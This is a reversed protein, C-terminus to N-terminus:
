EEEDDLEGEADADSGEWDLAEDEMGEQEKAWQEGKVQRVLELLAAPDLDDEEEDDSMRVDDEKSPEDPAGQQVDEDDSGAYDAVLTAASPRTQEEPPQDEGDSDGSAADNDSGYGGLLGKMREKGAKPDLKRRKAQPQVSDNGSAINITSRDRPEVLVVGQFREDGEEFVEITPFEVFQTHRLSQALPQNLDLDYYVKPFKMSSPLEKRKLTTTTTANADKRPKAYAALKDSLTKGLSSAYKQDREAAEQKLSQLILIPDTPAHMVCRPPTFGEPDEESPLLMSQLWDPCSSGSQTPRGKLAEKKSRDKALSQVLVLLPQDMRNRHTLIVLPPDRPASRPALPDLPHHFRFEVTLSATQNRLSHQTKTSSLFSSLLYRSDWSSQNAKRRKMGLPLLDVDIDRIEMQMKFIDRKTRGHPARGRGRGGRTNSSSEMGAGSGHLYGGNAIERGLESVRRGVDELFVYDNMMTGWGYDKM